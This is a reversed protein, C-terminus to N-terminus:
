KGQAKIREEVLFSEYRPDKIREIHIRVTVDVIEQRQDPPLECVVSGLGPTHDPNDADVPNTEDFFIERPYRLYELKVSEGVSDTGTDLYLIDKKIDSYLRTDKPKRYPNRSINVDSKKIHPVLWESIVDNAYYENGHYEIKFLHNLMRWYRPYNQTVGQDNNINASSDVPLNFIYDNGTIPAIPYLVTGVPYEQIGDTVVRLVQLDDIRKQNVEIEKAVTKRWQEQGENILRNWHSPTVVSTKEKQIGDNFAQYMQQTTELM